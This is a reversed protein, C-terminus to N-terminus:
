FYVRESYLLLNKLKHSLIFNSSMEQTDNSSPSQNTDYNGTSSTSAFLEDSTLHTSTLTSTTLYENSMTINATVKHQSTDSINQCFISSKLFYHCSIFGCDKKRCM